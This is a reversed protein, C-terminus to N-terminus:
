CVKPVILGDYSHDYLYFLDLRSSHVHELDIVICCAHATRISNDPWPVLMRTYDFYYVAVM